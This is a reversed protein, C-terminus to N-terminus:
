VSSKVMYHLRHLILFHILLSVGTTPLICMILQPQAQAANGAKTFAERLTQEVGAINSNAYTIPPERNRVSM